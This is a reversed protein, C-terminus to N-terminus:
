PSMFRECSSGSKRQHAVYKLPEFTLMPCQWPVELETVEAGTYVPTVFTLFESVIVTIALARDVSHAGILSMTMPIKFM